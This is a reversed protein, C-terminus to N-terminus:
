FQLFFFSFSFSFSLFFPHISGYHRKQYLRKVVFKAPHNKPNWINSQARWNHSVKDAAPPFVLSLSSSFNQDSSIGLHCRVFWNGPQNLHLTTKVERLLSRLTTLSHLLLFLRLFSNRKAGARGCVAPPRSLNGSRYDVLPFPPVHRTPFSGM